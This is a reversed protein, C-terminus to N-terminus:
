KGGKCAQLIDGDAVEKAENVPTSEGLGRVTGEGHATKWESEEAEAKLADANLTGDENLSYSESLRKIAKPADVGDFAEAVIKAADAKM